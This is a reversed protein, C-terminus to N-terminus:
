ASSKDCFCVLCSGTGWGGGFHGLRFDSGGGSRRYVGPVRRFGGADKWLADKNDLSITWKGVPFEEKKLQRALSLGQAGVLRIGPQMKLFALGEESSFSRTSQFIKVECNEGPKLEDTVGSFHDDTVDDNYYYFEKKHNKSFLALQRDHIYNEPVTLEFATLLVFRDESVLRNPLLVKALAEKLAKQNNNWGDLTTEDFEEPCPLQRLINAQFERYRGFATRNEKM